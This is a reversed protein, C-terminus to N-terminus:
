YKITIYKDDVTITARSEEEKLISPSLNPNNCLMVKNDKIELTCRYELKASVQMTTQPQAYAGSAILALLLVAKM